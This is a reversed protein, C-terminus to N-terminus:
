PASYAGGTTDPAFGLGFRMKTYKASSFRVKRCCKQNNIRAQFPANQFLFAAVDLLALVANLFTASCLEPLILVAQICSTAVVPIRTGCVSVCVCRCSRVTGETTLPLLAEPWHQTLARNEEARQPFPADRCFLLVHSIVIWLTFTGINFKWSVIRVALLRYTEIRWCTKFM